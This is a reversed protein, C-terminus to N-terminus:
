WLDLKNMMDDEDTVDSLLIELNEPSYKRMAIKERGRWLWDMFKKRFRLLFYNFKFQYIIKLLNNNNNLNYLYQNDTITNNFLKVRNFVFTNIRNYLYCLKDIEINTFSCNLYNIVKSKITPLEYLQKNGSLCIIELSEPLYDIKEINCGGCRLIKIKENLLPLKKIKNTSVILEILDKPLSPLNTIDNDFCNFHKLNKSIHVIKKIKNSACYVEELSDPMKLREIQNYTCEFTKLNPPLIIKKLKNQRCNLYLLSDPLNKLETLQNYSCNLDILNNYNLFSLSTYDNLEINIIDDEITYKEIKGDYFNYIENGENKM